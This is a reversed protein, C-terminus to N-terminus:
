HEAGTLEMLTEKRLDSAILKTSIEKQRISLVISTSEMQDTFQVMMRIKRQQFRDLNTPILLNNM